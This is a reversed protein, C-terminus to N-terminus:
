KRWWPKQWFSRGGSNEYYNSENWLQQKPCKPQIIEDKEYEDLYLDEKSIFPDLWDAKEKAWQLKELVEEDVIGNKELYIEYTHVYDRIINAKFHREAMTFLSQFEKLETNCKEEFERRKRQEEEMQIRRKETEIRELKINESQIELFAIIPIIKDELRTQPTDKYSKKDWSNYLINFHLEGCFETNNYNNPDDNNTDKKRRETINIQIKEENIVAYTKDKDIQINHGRYRLSKIVTSFISLARDITKDSVYIDLTEKIQSKYPNKKLYSNKQNNARFKEKTDIILPDKAFLVEPVSFISIDGASIEQERIKQKNVPPNLDISVNNMDVERLDVSQKKVQYDDPLPMKEVQKGNQLKAWYGMPPTPINMSVCHKRLGNDTLGFRKCVSTMPESWVLDYLEKRTLTM